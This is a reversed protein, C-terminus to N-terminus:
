KRLDESHRYAFGFSVLLDGGPTKAQLRLPPQPAAQRDGEDRASGYRVRLAREM